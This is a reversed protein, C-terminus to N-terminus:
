VVRIRAASSKLAAAVVDLARVLESRSSAAGLSIRVAHPPAEEVSFLEATVITLGQRQVHSAFEACTWTGRYRNEM